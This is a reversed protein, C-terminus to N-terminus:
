YAFSLQKLPLNELSKRALFSYTNGPFPPSLSTDQPCWIKKFIQPLAQAFKAVSGYPTGFYPHWTRCIEFGSSELFKYIVNPPLYIQHLPHWLRFRPGYLRAMPSHPNILGSILLFAGPKLWLLARALFRGPDLIHDLSQNMILASLHGPPFDLEEAWTQNVDLGRWRALEAAKPHPEVALAQCHKPLLSLMLGGGAGVDLLRDKPTLERAFSQAYRSYEGRRAELRAQPDVSRGDPDLASQWREPALFFQRVCDLPWPPAVQWAGCQHCICLQFPTEPFNNDVTLHEALGDEGCWRCLGLKPTNPKATSM